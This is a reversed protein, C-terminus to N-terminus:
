FQTVQGQRRGADHHIAQVEWGVPLRAVRKNSLRSADTVPQKLPAQGLSQWYDQAKAYTYFAQGDPAQICACVSQRCRQQVAMAHTFRIEM